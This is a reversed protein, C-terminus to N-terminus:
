KTPSQTKTKSSNKESFAIFFIGLVLTLWSDANDFAVGLLSGKGASGAVLFCLLAAAVAIIGIVKFFQGIAKEDKYAVSIFIVGLIIDIVGTVANSVFFGLTGVLPNPIFAFVGAVFAIIGIWLSIRNAM